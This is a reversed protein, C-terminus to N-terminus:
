NPKGCNRYNSIKFIPERGYNKERLNARKIHPAPKQPPDLSDARAEDGARARECLRLNICEEALTRASEEWTISIDCFEILM